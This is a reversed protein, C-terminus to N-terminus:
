KDWMIRDLGMQTNRDRMLIERFEEELEPQVLKMTIMLNMWADNVSENEKVMREIVEYFDAKIFKGSLKSRAEDLMKVSDKAQKEMAELKEKLDNIEKEQKAIILDPSENMEDAFREADFAEM